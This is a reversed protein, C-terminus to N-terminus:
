VWNLYSVLCSVQAIEASVDVRLRWTWNSAVDSCANAFECNEGEGGVEEDDVVVFAWVM